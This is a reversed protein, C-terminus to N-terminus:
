IHKVSRRFAQQDLKLMLTPDRDPYPNPMRMHYNFSTSWMGLSLSVLLGWSTMPHNRYLMMESCPTIYVLHRLACRNLKVKWNEDSFASTAVLWRKRLFECTPLKHKSISQKAKLGCVFRSASSSGAKEEAARGLNKSNTQCRTCRSLCVSCFLFHVLNPGGRFLNPRFGSKETLVFCSVRSSGCPQKKYVYMYIDPIALTM